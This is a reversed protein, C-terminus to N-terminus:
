QSDPQGHSDDGGTDTNKRPLGKLIWRHIPFWLITLPISMWHSWRPIFHRGVFMLIMFVVVWLLIRYTKHCLRQWAALYVSLWFVLCIANTIKGHMGYLVISKHVFRDEYFSSVFVLVGYMWVPSFIEYQMSQRSNNTDM